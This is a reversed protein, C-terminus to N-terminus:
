KSNELLQLLVEAPVYGPLLRGDPFIIAPTGRIGLEGALKVNDDVATSDCEPKPLPKNAFADDLLKPDKACVIARSKDYAGPHSPLPFMKIYFAVDDRESTIKKIEAHLKACYPCEPDDFVIVRKKAKANGVVVADDLPVKSLDIKQLEPPEGIKELETFKGEVLYKKAFDVFVVFKRGNQQIEVEWLGKVPSLRIDTVEAKFKETKLLGAAEDKELSHCDRCESGCGAGQFASASGAAVIPVAFFLAAFTMVFFRKMYVTM